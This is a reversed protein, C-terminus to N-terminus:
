FPKDLLAYRHLEARVRGYRAAPDGHQPLELMGALTKDMSQAPARAEFFEIVLRPTKAGSLAPAMATRSISRLYEFVDEALGLPTRASKSEPEDNGDVWILFLLCCTAHALHHLGTEPDRTEGGWWAEIHRHAADYYRRRADPVKQWNDPAYKRAGYELVDVVQPVTGRPLLSWRRKGSDLKVGETM